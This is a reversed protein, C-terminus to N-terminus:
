TELFDDDNAPCPIDDWSGVAVHKAAEIWRRRQERVGATMSAGIHWARKPTYKVGRWRTEAIAM